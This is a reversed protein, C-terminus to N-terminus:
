KLKIQPSYFEMKDHLFTCSKKSFILGAATIHTATVTDQDDNEEDKEEIGVKINETSEALEADTDNEDIKTEKEKEQVSKKEKEKENVNEKDQKDQGRGAELKNEVEDVNIEDNKELKEDDKNDDKKNDNDNETESNKETEKKNDKENDKTDDKTGDKDKQKKKLRQTLGALESAALLGESNDGNVSAALPDADKDKKAIEAGIYMNKDSESLSLRRHPVYDSMIEDNKFQYISVSKLALLPVSGTEFLNKLIKMCCLIIIIFLVISVISWLSLEKVGFYNLKNSSYCDSTDLSVWHMAQQIM